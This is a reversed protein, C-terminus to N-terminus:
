RSSMEPICQRAESTGSLLRLTDAIGASLSGRFVFGLSEIRERSVTYSLQNMIETDVTAVSVSVHSEIISVIEGVTANDTLVNYVAGEFLDRDILFRFARVADGLDLYPRRQNLATRWVTLPEGTSAQWCFKNVATHFRMGPSTGYITGLRCVVGKLGSGAMDQIHQEARLKSAAYPSQPNLDSESCSEDVVDGQPGYVSTTSPFVLRSGVERCAAAVVETGRLNVEEVEEERGFSSPADTIAALHVVVDSGEFLNPLNAELVDCQSLRYQGEKPLDFLSCFRHTSLDDILLIESGPFYSPLLRILHSGIHGLAGTVVIKM